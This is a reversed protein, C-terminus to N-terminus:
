FLLRVFVRNFHQKLKYEYMTFTRNLVIKKGIKNFIIKLFLFFKLLLFSKLLVSSIKVFFDYTDLHMCTKLLVFNVRFNLIQIIDNCSFTNLMKM